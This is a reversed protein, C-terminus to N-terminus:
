LITSYQVTNYENYVIFYSLDYQLWPMIFIDNYCTNYLYQLANYEMTYQIENYITVYQISNYKMARQVM